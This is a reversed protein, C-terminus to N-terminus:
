VRSTNKYDGLVEETATGYREGIYGEVIDLIDEANVDQLGLEKIFTQCHTLLYEKTLGITVAHIRFHYIPSKLCLKELSTMM